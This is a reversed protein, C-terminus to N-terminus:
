KCLNQQPVWITKDLRSTYRGNSLLRKILPWARQVDNSECLRYRYSGPQYPGTFLSMNLREYYSIFKFQSVLYAFEQASIGLESLEHEQIGHFRLIGPTSEISRDLHSFQTLLQIRASQFAVISATVSIFAALIAILESAAM